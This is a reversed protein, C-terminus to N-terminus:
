TQTPSHFTFFLLTCVLTQLDNSLGVRRACAVVFDTSKPCSPQLMTSATPFPDDSLRSIDMTVIPRKIQLYSPPTWTFLEVWYRGLNKLKFSDWAHCAMMRVPKCFTKQQVQGFSLNLGLRSFIELPCALAPELAKTPAM